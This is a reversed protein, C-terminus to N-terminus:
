ALAQGLDSDLGETRHRSQRKPGVKPLRQSTTAQIEAADIYPRLCHPKDSRGGRQYDRWLNAAVETAPQKLVDTLYTLLLEVLRGLPIGHLKREQEFLWSSLRRFAFFPSPIDNEVSDASAAAAQWLCILTEVFNGSNAITDWYKAFRRLEQIASFDLLRTSLIEYPPHPSYIMRWEADHRVIPTGRLRKLIGVQIEHPGMGVLRDFGAAFSELTEGPLGVILDAHIHVGTSEKLWRLNQEVVANDQRRSIHECVEENFTQIGVEFQLAGAPFQVILDKLSDPLRDPIMEFHLFMGPRYRSLFFELIARGVRLNLNFTRDVFKFQLAGRDLLRQMSQLFSELPFQRVPIELASLCFECTFPCGRSAEVYLVRHAIDHDSYLEYPLVLDTLVPLPANSVHSRDITLLNPVDGAPTSPEELQERCFKAFALDAEGCIVRDALRAIEQQETEYSVEPGGLVVVIEPRIRKLDAVLRTTEDINWIYVGLGVIRPRQELIAALIDLTPQQITFELLVTRSQLEDLNAFLYRLGFASHLYRANLTALVIDPM